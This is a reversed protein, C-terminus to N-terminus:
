TDYPLTLANKSGVGYRYHTFCHEAVSIFIEYNISSKVNIYCHKHLEIIKDGELKKNASKIFNISVKLKRTSKNLM